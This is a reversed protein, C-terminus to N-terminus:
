ETSLSKKAREAIRRKVESLMRPLEKKTARNTVFQPVIIGPDCHIGYIALTTGNPLRYLKWFGEFSKFGGSIRSWSIEKLYEHRIIVTCTFTKILFHLKCICRVVQSDPSSELIEWSKLKRMFRVIEKPDTLVQWIDEESGALTIARRFFKHDNIVTDPLEIVDDNGIQFISSDIKASTSDGHVTTKLMLLTSMTLILMITSRFVIRHNKLINEMSSTIYWFLCFRWFLNKPRVKSNAFKGRLRRLQLVNDRLIMHLYDCKNAIMNTSDAGFQWFQGSNM